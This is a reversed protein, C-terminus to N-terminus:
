YFHGLGTKKEKEGSFNVIPNLLLLGFIIFILIRCGLLLQYWQENSLIKYLYYILGIGIFITAWFIFDVEHLFNFDM